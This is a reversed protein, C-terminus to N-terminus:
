EKNNMYILDNSGSDTIIYCTSNHTPKGLM